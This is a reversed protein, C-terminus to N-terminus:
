TKNRTRSSAPFASTCWNDPRAQEPHLIKDPTRCWSQPMPPLNLIEDFPPTQKRAAKKKKLTDFLAKM